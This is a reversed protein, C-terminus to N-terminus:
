DTDTPRRLLEQPDSKHVYSPPLEKYLSLYLAAEEDNFVLDNPFVLYSKPAVGYTKYYDCAGMVTYTTSHGSRHLNMRLATTTATDRM